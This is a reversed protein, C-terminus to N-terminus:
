RGAGLVKARRLMGGVPDALESSPLEMSLSTKQMNVVQPAGHVTHSAFRLGQALHLNTFISAFISREGAGRMIERDMRMQMARLAHRQADTPRLEHLQPLRSLVRHWRLVSAYIGRYVHAFPENRAKPRTRLHLFKATADPYEAFAENLMQGALDLGHPQMSSTEAMSAILLCLVPGDHTLAMLRRAAAVKRAPEATAFAVANLGIEAMQPSCRSLLSRIASYSMGEALLCQTLLLSFDKPEDCVADFTERFLKVIDTNLRGLEGICNLTLGRLSKKQLLNSVGSDVFGRIEDNDVAHRLMDAVLEVLPIKTAGITPTTFSHMWNATAVLAHVDGVEVAQHLAAMAGPSFEAIATLAFWAARGVEPAAGVVMTSLKGEAPRLLRIVEPEDMAIFQLLTVLLSADNNTGDLLRLAFQASQEPAANSFARAWVHISGDGNQGGQRLMEGLQEGLATQVAIHFKLQESVCHWYSPEVRDAFQLFKSADALALTPVYKVAPMLRRLASRVGATPWDLLCEFLNLSSGHTQGLAIWIEQSAESTSYADVLAEFQELQNGCLAEVIKTIQDQTM